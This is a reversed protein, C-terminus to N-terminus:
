RGEAVAAEGAIAAKKRAAAQKIIVAATELQETEAAVRAMAARRNNGRDTSSSSGKSNISRVRCPVALKSNREMTRLQHQHLCMCARNSRNEASSITSPKIDNVTQTLSAESGADRRERGRDREIGSKAYENESERGIGSSIM